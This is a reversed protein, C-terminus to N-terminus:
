VWDGEGQVSSPSLQCLGWDSCGGIFSIAMYIVTDASTPKQICACTHVCTTCYLTNTCSYTCIKKPLCMYMYSALVWMAELKPCRFLPTNLFLWTYRRVMCPWEMWTPLLQMHAYMIYPYSNCMTSCTFICLVSWYYTIYIHPRHVNTNDQRETIDSLCNAWSNTHCGPKSFCVVLKVHSPVTIPIHGRSRKKWTPIHVCLTSFFVLVACQASVSCAQSTVCTNCSVLTFRSHSRSNSLLLTENTTSFRSVFLM